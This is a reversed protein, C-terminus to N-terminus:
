PHLQPTTGTQVGHDAHRRSSPVPADAPLQQLPLGELLTSVRVRIAAALEELTQRADLVLYRDPEAEALAHFTHRVRLHFDLSESELRDATARGRARALGIEPPLDLLVTLDPRLGQTAWRSISRVDDMPITRGAGQYALSSDVFRDTIVVEGADLAPRLVEHVHQARDAAYMLAEARPSIGTSAPDLLMARIKGGLATGGPERTTRAVLGEETLWEQLRRVQTSKGAGEGGEFAIFVGGGALRRRATTDRRLATMVDAVLPVPRGDDMQRYALLGVLVALLGALLLMVREGTVPVTFAGLDLRHQGILGVCIPTLGLSVILAARVLSQVLAFTRGRIADEIETGLLTFGSLYAVGAFFGTLVVLLLAVWLAVAAGLLLLSAGAGVIAIGFLRERSLDRAVSPGLAIGLGLGVFVAGFLVGYAAQGGGLANVFAQGTAIVVGAAVFAGTIGVVLGRVLPSHGAFSFGEKLSSLFGEGTVQVGAARRGSISPLNWIVVAAVLFTLANLYLALDVEDVGPLADSLGGGLSALLAFVAAAAVPTLGYTTVLSLQNAPELQDKRLMNPVAAEKAPIWFLSIAEILFQAIFLWVLDDVIPISAFLGFRLVDSVVMTRRRDFRDAFAGALPGLVIAPLLRFLLVGGLAFNAAAFGEVLSTATATIALLGLWDGFSSLTMSLWLRRFDRVRLVARVKAALGVAVADHPEEGGTRGPEAPAAGSRDPAPAGGDLLGALPVGAGDPTPTGAPPLGDTPVAGSSSPQSASAPGAVGGSGAGPMAGGAAPGAASPGDAQDSSISVGRPTPPAPARQARGPGPRVRDGYRGPRVPRPRRSGPRSADM